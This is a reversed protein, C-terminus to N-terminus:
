IHCFFDLRNDLVDKNIKIHSGPPLQDAPPRQSPTPSTWYAPFYEVLTLDAGKCEIM